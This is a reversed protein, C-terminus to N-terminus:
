ALPLFIMTPMMKQYWTGSDGNRHDAADLNEAVYVDATCIM